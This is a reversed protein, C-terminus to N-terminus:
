TSVARRRLRQAGLAALGLGLAVPWQLPGSPGTRALGSVSGPGAPQNPALVTRGTINPGPTSVTVPSTAPTDIIATNPVTGTAGANVSVTVRLTISQGPAVTPITWTVTRGSTACGDSCSVFIVKESLTDTITVSTCPQAAHNFVNVFFTFQEGNYVELHSASKNSGTLNCAGAGPPIVPPETLTFTRTVTRGDCTASVSVVDEYRQGATATSPVQVRIRLATRADPAIPGIDAWSIQTREVGTGAAAPAGVSTATPETLVVTTAAPGTLVDTVAVNQLTCDGVNGVAITYDFSRGPIAPGSNVKQLEVPNTHDTGCRLGGAPAVVSAVMPGLEILGLPEGVDLGLAALLQALADAVPDLEGSVDPPLIEIRLLTAEVRASTGDAATTRTVPVSLRVLPELPGLLPELAGLDGILDTLALGVPATATQTANLEIVTQGGITVEVIPDDGTVSAGGPIGTAQVLYAPARVVRVNLVSALDPAVNNLVDAGALRTTVTAAVARQDFPGGTAPLSTAAEVDAAGDEGVDIEVVSQRVERDIVVADALAQDALSLPDTSAVCETDGVWNATATTTIVDINLLPDAPIETLTQSSTESPPATARNEQIAIPQGLLNTLGTTGAVAGTRQAGAEGDVDGDSASLAVSHAVDVNTLPLLPPSLAPADVRLLGADALASFPGSAQLPAPAPPASSAPSATVLLSWGLVAAAIGGRRARSRSVTPVTSPWVRRESSV